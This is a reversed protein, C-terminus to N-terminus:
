IQYKFRYFIMMLQLVVWEYILVNAFTQSVVIKTYSIIM